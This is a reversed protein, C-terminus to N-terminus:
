CLDFIIWVRPYNNGASTQQYRSPNKHQRRHAENRRRTLRLEQADRGWVWHMTMLLRRGNRCRIVVVCNMAYLCKWMSTRGHAAWSSILDMIPGPLPRFPTFVWLNYSLAELLFLESNLIFYSYHDQNRPIHYSFTQIGIPFDTAKCAMYFCTLMMERSYFGMMLARMLYIYRKVINFKEDLDLAILKDEDNVYEGSEATQTAAQVLRKRTVANCEQRQAAVDAPSFYWNYLQTSTAYAM